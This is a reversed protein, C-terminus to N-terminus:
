GGRAEVSAIRVKLEAVELALDNAIATLENAVAALRNQEEVLRNQEEALTNTKEALVSLQDLQVIVARIQTDVAALQKDAATQGKKLAAVSKEVKGLRVIASKVVALSERSVAISEKAMIKAERSLTISTQAYSTIEDLMRAASTLAAQTTEEAADYVAHRADEKELFASMQSLMYGFRQDQQKVTADIRKALAGVEKRVVTELVNKLTPIMTTNTANTLAEAHRRMATAIQDPDGSAQARGMLDIAESLEWESGGTEEDSVVVASRPTISRRLNCGICIPLLRSILPRKGRESM